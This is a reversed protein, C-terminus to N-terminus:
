LVVISVAKDPKPSFDFCRVILNPCTAGNIGSVSVIFRELILLIIVSASSIIRLKPNTM